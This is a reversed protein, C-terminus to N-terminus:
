YLRTVPRNFLRHVPVVAIESEDLREVNVIDSELARFSAASTDLPAYCQSHRLGRCGLKCCAESGFTFSLVIGGQLGVRRFFDLWGAGINGSSIVHDNKIQKSVKM